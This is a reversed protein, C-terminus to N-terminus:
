LGVGGGVVLRRGCGWRPTLRHSAIGKYHPRPHTRGGLCQTIDNTIYVYLDPLILCTLTLVLIM